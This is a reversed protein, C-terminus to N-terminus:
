TVVEDDLMAVVANILKAETTVLPILPDGARAKAALTSPALEPAIGRYILARIERVYRKGLRVFLVEREGKGKLVLVAVKRLDDKIRDRNSDFWARLFSREPIDVTGFEQWGAVQETERDGKVGVRLRKGHKSSDVAKMVKSYGRDRDRIKLNGM